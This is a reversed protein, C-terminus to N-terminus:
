DVEVRDRGANKARYLAADSRRLMDDFSTDGVRSQTAGISVTLFVPEATHLNVSHCSRRLRVAIEAAGSLGTEPLLLAFEEGGLRGLLDTERKSRSLMASLLRLAEDGVAHGFRDNISKFHDIDIMLVSFPRKYRLFRDFEAEAARLFYRRNTIGTLEDTSASHLVSKGLSDSKVQCEFQKRRHSHFRVSAWIGL